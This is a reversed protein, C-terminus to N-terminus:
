FAPARDTVRIEKTTEIGHFAVLTERNNKPMKSNKWNKPGSKKRIPKELGNM